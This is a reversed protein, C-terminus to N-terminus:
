TAPCHLLLFEFAPQRATNIRNYWKRNPVTRRLDVRSIDGTMCERYGATRMADQFLPLQKDPDAFSVLQAVIAESHIIHRISRFAATINRLYNDQGTKTRSGLTYFSAGQGDVAGIFWYPAPTERRGGVQWRHYLVHVNVYPPSTLVLRPKGLYKQLRRDLHADITSRMLLTRQHIMSSRDMSSIKAKGVLESVGDLMEDLFAKFKIRLQDTTPLQEKGDVAWQGLRLLCCISFQRQKTSRLKSVQGLLTNFASAIAPPLNRIRPEFIPRSSDTLDSSAFDLDSAWQRIVEVDDQSLPTTKVSTVFAALPNIDIGVARRGAAVAEVITTGGGMFPDLVIDGPESYEHIIERAFDPLMQAPYKYFTHTYGYVRKSSHLSKVIPNISELATNM